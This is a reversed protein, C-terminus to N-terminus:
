CLIWDVLATCHSASGTTRQHFHLPEATADVAEVATDVEKAEQLTHTYAYVYFVGPHFIMCDYQIVGARKECLQVEQCM